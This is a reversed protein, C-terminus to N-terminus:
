DGYAHAQGQTFTGLGKNMQTIMHREAETLYPNWTDFIFLVRLQDSDNRAEHEITDDFVWAKGPEWRSVSNGVRYSCAEPVILPLHVILRANSAGVHPPIHSKPKLLSFFAAPTRGPQDPWPTREWAAMTKPCRPANEPVRLGDKVLHFASWDPSHNLSAWQAVPQDADYQIYPEFVEQGDNLVRLFENRIDDTAGEVDALWPFHKRDYFEEVPLHPVYYRMPQPDFRRKRGLLIDLSLQFRQLDRQGVEAIHPALFDDMFAAMRQQHQSFFQRAHQVAGRLEPHLTDDAPAVTAAAGFAQAAEGMRGRREALSGKMLLAMLDSPDASLAKFLAAEEGADDGLRQCALALNIWRRPVHPEAAAAREFHARSSSFDGERFSLQGLQTHAAAHAPALAIVQRWLDRAQGGQGLRMAEIARQELRVLAQQAEQNSM